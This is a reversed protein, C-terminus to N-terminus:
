KFFKRQFILLYILAVSIYSDAINFIPSFFVFPEGGWVPVWSPMMDIQIIPFYLMDVVNGHLFTGYGDGIATFVAPMFYTSESFILGYFASDVINGLAGVMILTFAVIVGNPAHRKVLRHIYVCLVAVAVVRFLSLILKGYDGGLEMGYAAGPNEIFRIYFWNGFVAIGENLTMTTKVIVKVVQDIVLLAVSIIVIWTSTLQKMYLKRFNRRWRCIGDTLLTKLVIFLQDSM